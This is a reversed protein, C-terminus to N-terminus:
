CITFVDFKSVLILSTNGLINPNPGGEQLRDNEDEEVEIEHQISLEQAAEAAYENAEEEEEERNLRVQLERLIDDGKPLVVGDTSMGGSGTSKGGGSDIRQLRPPGPLLEDDDNDDDSKTENKELEISVNIDHMVDMAAPSSINANGDVSLLTMPMYANIKLAGGSRSFFLDNESQELRRREKEAKEPDELTVALEKMSINGDRDTDASSVFDLVDTASLEIRLYEFGGWMEGPSLLGNKDFDFKNFADHLSLGSQRIASILRFSMARHKLMAFQDQLTFLKAVSSELWKKAARRRCSLVHKFFMKRNRRTTGHMARLIVNLNHSSFFMDSNFFRLVQETADQMFTSSLISPRIAGAFVSIPDYSPDFYGFAADTVRFGDSICRLALTTPFGELFPLMAAESLLLGPTTATYRFTAAHKRM